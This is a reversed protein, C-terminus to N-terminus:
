LRLIVIKLDKQFLAKDRDKNRKIHTDRYEGHCGADAAGFILGQFQKIHKGSPRQDVAMHPIDHLDRDQVQREKDEILQDFVARCGGTCHAKEHEEHHASAEIETVAIIHAAPVPEHAFPPIVSRDEEDDADEYGLILITESLDCSFGIDYEKREKRDKRTKESPDGAMEEVFVGVPTLDRSFIGSVEILEATKGYLDGEDEAEYEKNKKDHHLDTESVRDQLEETRDRQLEVQDM